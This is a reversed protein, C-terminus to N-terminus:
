MLWSMLVITPVQIIHEDLPFNFHGEKGKGKKCLYM